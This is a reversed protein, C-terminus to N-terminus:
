TRTKCLSALYRTYVPKGAVTFIYFHNKHAYFANRKAEDADEPSEDPHLRLVPKEIMDAGMNLEQGKEM